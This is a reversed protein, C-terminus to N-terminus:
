VFLVKEEYKLDVATADLLLRSVTEKDGAVAAQHIEKARQSQM